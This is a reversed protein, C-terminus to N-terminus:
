AYIKNIFMLFPLPNKFKFPSKNAFIIKSIGAQITFTGKYKMFPYISCM